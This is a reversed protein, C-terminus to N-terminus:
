SGHSWKDPFQFDLCGKKSTKNTTKNNGNKLQLQQKLFILDQGWNWRDFPGSKIVLVPRWTHRINDEIKRVFRTLLYNTESLSICGSPLSSSRSWVLNESYCHSRKFVCYLSGGQFDKSNCHTTKSNWLISPVSYYIWWSSQNSFHISYGCYWNVWKQLLERNWM